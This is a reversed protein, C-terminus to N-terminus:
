IYLFKSLSFVLIKAISFAFAKRGRFSSSFHCVRSPDYTMFFFPFFLMNVKAVEKAMGNPDTAHAGFADILKGFFIFFVPIAAGHVCAGLTGLLMLLYDLSDAFSFLKYMSVSPQAEPQKKGNGDDDDDDDDTDNNLVETKHFDRGYDLMELNKETREEDIIVGHENFGAVDSVAGTKYVKTSNKWLSNHSHKESSGGDSNSQLLDVSEAAM